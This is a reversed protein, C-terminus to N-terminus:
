REFAELAVPEFVGPSVMQWIQRFGCDRVLRLAADFACAVNCASHADSGLTVRGDMRRLQELLVRSPYPSTRYGRSIAGTNVEFIKDAEVLAEMARAAARRYVPSEEDFFAGRENFKTLLDFHGVIQARPQAAVKQLESFYLAAAADADGVFYRALLDATAEPSEDVSPNAGDVPLHHVSGIVYDFPALDVNTSLVDWEIGAYVAMRPAFAAALHRMERLFVEVTEMGPAWDNKFPLPSHLSLGCSRMGASLSARVMEEPTSRGDDLTSHAHLNQPTM